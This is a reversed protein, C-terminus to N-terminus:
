ILSVVVKGKAGVANSGGGGGPASGSAFGAGGNGGFVSDGGASPTSSISGGGGGGGFVGAGGILGNGGGAGGSWLNEGSGYEGNPGPGGGPGPNGGSSPQGGFAFVRNGFSTNGGATFVAGGAGIAIAETSNVDQSLFSAEVFAGGGGGANASGGAGGGWMQVIVTRNNGTGAPKNWTGSNDFTWQEIQVSAQASVAGQLIFDGSWYVIQYVTGPQLTGSELTSGDANLIDAEPTGTITLTVGGTNIAQPVFRFAMNDVLGHADIEPNVDATITNTGSVNSLPLTSNDFLAQLLRAYQDGLGEPVGVNGWPVSPSSGDFTSRQM